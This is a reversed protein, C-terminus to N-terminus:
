KKKKSHGNARKIQELKQKILKNGTKYAHHSADNGAGDVMLVDAGNRLLDEFVFVNDCIVSTMLPTLGDKDRSNINSSNIIYKTMHRQGHRTALHLLTQGDKDMLTPNAKHSVLFKYVELHSGSVARMLPTQNNRGRVDIDFDGSVENVITVTGGLRLTQQVVAEKQGQVYGEFYTVLHEVIAKNGGECALHLVSDKHDDTLTLDANQSVLLDFVDKKGALAAAMIPTRGHRGSANVDFKRILYNVISCDGGECALHLITDRSDDVREIDAKRSLLLEFLNPRAHLATVMIATRGKNGLCNIDTKALLTNVISKNGGVCALHLVSNNSNDRLRVDAGKSVLLEFVSHVGNAAAFMVPTWGNNGRGNIDFMQLLHKVISVNGGHCALHLLNNGKDDSQRNAKQPDLLHEFAKKHGNVAAKMAPSWGHKGQINVDLKTKMHVLMTVDHVTCAAHLLSNNDEDTLTLDAKKSVLIDFVGMRGSLVACMIPTQGNKGRDNINVDPLLNEVTTKGDRQCALHLLTNNNSDRLGFDIKKTKVNDSKKKPHIFCDSVGEFGFVVACMVPTLGTRTQSNLFQKAYSDLNRRVFHKVHRATPAHGYLCALHLINYGNDDCLTVDAKKDVLIDFYKMQEFVVAYMLPTWGNLGSRKIDCQSVLQELAYTNGTVFAHCLLHHKADDSVEDLHKIMQSFEDAISPHKWIPHWIYETLAGSTVSAVMRDVLIRRNDKSFPISLKHKYTPVSEPQQEQIHDLLFTISFHELTFKPEINFLVSVCVDYILSHSFTAMEGDTLFTGYFSRVAKAVGQRTFTRVLATVAQLHAELDSKDRDTQLHSDPSVGVFKLPSGPRVTEPNPQSAPSLTEPKVQHDSRVGESALMTDASVADPKVQSDSWAVEVPEVQSDPMATESKLRTGPSVGEPEVESHPSTTESTLQGGPRVGESKKLEDPSVGTSELITDTSVGETKPESNSRDGEPKMQSNSTACEYKVKSDPFVSGLMEQTDPSAVESKIQSSPTLGESKHQNDTKEDKPTMQSGQIVGETELQSISLQGECLTMLALAASKHDLSSIITRLQNTIYFLPKEFFHERYVQFDACCSFLKCALPFGVITNEHATIKNEDLSTHPSKYKQRLEKKEEQTYHIQVSSSESFISQRGLKSLAYELNNSEATFIVCVHPQALERTDERPEQQLCQYRRESRSESQGLYVHLDYLFHKIGYLDKHSRITKFIDDFIVCVDKGTHLYDTLRVKNHDETLVLEYGQKRYEAGLMLAMSTKGEGPGGTITVHGFMDLKEQAKKFSESEVFVKESDKIKQGLTGPPLNSEDLLEFSCSSDDDKGSADIDAEGQEAMELKDTDAEGQKLPEEESPRTAADPTTLCPIRSRVSEPIWGKEGVILVMVVMAVALILLIPVLIAALNTTETPTSAPPKTTWTYTTVPPPAVSTGPATNCFDGIYNGSCGFTCIGNQRNCVKRLCNTSCARDCLDEFWGPVCGESCRGTDKQCHTLNRISDPMCNPPCDKSCTEGYKGWECNKQGHAEYALAVLMLILRIFVM